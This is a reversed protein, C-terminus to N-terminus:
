GACGSSLCRSSRSSTTCIAPPSWTSFQAPKREQSGPFVLMAKPFLKAAALMSALADYDANLHTTIVEVDRKPEKGRTEAM